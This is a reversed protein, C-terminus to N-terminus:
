NISIKKTIVSNGSQIKIVYLGDTLENLDIKHNQENLTQTYVETGCLSYIKLEGQVGAEQLQIFLTKNFSYAKINSSSVVDNIGTTTATGQVKFDDIRYTGSSAHHLNVTWKFLLSAQNSAGAPLAIATSGNDLAWTSNNANETYTLQNWTSGSNNSWYFGQVVSGSDAFHTTSRAGWDASITNYGTTAVPKSILDYVGTTSATNDIVANVQGSAGTYGSSVNTKKVAWGGTTTTWGVPLATSDADFNELYITTQAETISISFLISALGVAIKKFTTKRNM